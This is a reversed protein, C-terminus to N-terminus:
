TNYLGGKALGRRQPLTLATISKVLALYGYGEGDGMDDISKSSLPDIEQALM